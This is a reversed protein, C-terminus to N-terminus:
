TLRATPHNSPRSPSAPPRTPPRAPRAPPVPPRVPHSQRASQAIIKIAEDSPQYRVESYLLYVREGTGDRWGAGVGTLGDARGDTRGLGGREVGTQGVTRGDM